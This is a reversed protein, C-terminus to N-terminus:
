EGLQVVVRANEAIADGDGELECVGNAFDEGGPGHRFDRQQREAVVYLPGDSRPRYGSKFEEVEKEKYSSFCALM